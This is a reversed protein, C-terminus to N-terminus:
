LFLSFQPVFLLLLTFEHRTSAIQMEKMNKLKNGPPKDYAVMRDIPTVIQTLRM